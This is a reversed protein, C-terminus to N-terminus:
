LLSGQTPAIGRRAQTAAVKVCTVHAIRGDLVRQRAIIANAGGAGREAEWGTVPWAATMVSDVAQGCFTCRGRETM